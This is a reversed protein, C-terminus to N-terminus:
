EHAPRCQLARLPRDQNPRGHAHIRRIRSKPGATACRWPFLPRPIELPHATWQRRGPGRGIKKELHPAHGSTFRISLAWSRAWVRKAGEDDFGSRARKVSDAVHGGQYSSIAVGQVDEQIAAAVVEDVSRNHGLHVVEAGQRQLIRRMINIAADHGDFLSAATVFRVPHTPM